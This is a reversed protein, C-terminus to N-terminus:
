AAKLHREIDIDYFAMWRYLTRRSVGLAVAAQAVTRAQAIAMRIQEPSVPPHSKM